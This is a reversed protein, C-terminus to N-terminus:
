PDAHVYLLPLRVVSLWSLITCLKHVVHSPNHSVHTPKMVNTTMAVLTLVPVSCHVDVNSKHLLSCLSCSWDVYVSLQLTHSSM